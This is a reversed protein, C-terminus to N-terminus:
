TKFNYRLYVVNNIESLTKINVRRIYVGHDFDDYIM